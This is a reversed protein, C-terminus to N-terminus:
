KLFYASSAIYVVDDNYNIKSEKSNKSNKWISRPPPKANGNEFEKRKYVRWKGWMMMHNRLYIGSSFKMIINKGYTDISVLKSNVLQEKVKDLPKSKNRYDINVITKDFLAESIRDATRKVEPGESM